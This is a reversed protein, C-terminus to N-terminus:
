VFVGVLRFNHIASALQVLALFSDKTKTWCFKIGRSWQQIGFIQEIKWRGLPTFKVKNKNRRVNTAALLALNERSLATYLKKSDWASDAIMVKPKDIYKRLKKIHPLLLKSDHTNASDILISLIIRNMDIVIAKKVGNRSRDTPNKGGFQAFPAKISATDTIFCGPDGL